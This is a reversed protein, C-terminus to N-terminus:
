LVKGRGRQGFFVLLSSFFTLNQKQVVGQGAACPLPHLIDMVLKTMGGDKGKHLANCDKQIGTTCSM